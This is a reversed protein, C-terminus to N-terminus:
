ADPEGEAPVAPAPRIILTVLAQGEVRAVVVELGEVTVAEGEAPLRGLVETVHGAVTESVGDWSAGIWPEVEDLRLTGPVRVRGDPLRMPREDAEKLEDAVEGLVEALVDDLTVLGSVGGFEDVAIAQHCRRERLLRMLREGTATEPVIAAPRLLQELPPLADHRALHRALDEIHLIGVITDKDGKYVPLRTYPSEAALRVVEDPPTAVDLATMRPRPVMLQSVPRMGLRLARQLRRHEDPELLGGDRSEAILLEIEDPSHIHRHGGIRVGFLRLIVNSSGNLVAIFWSLLRLSWRMPAVTLLATRTPHQLAISKPVLEGLVMQVATLVVLVVVAATSEAAVEGVWGHEALLPALGGAIAAQGYAGLVLSSLTIGVQCAAIYRDLREADQLVTLLWAATANGDEALQQLRSKRTGLAAFEAAVYLANLGLLLVVIVLTSLVM